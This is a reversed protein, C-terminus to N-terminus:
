RFLRLRSGLSETQRAPILRKVFQEPVVQDRGHMERRGVSKMEFLGRGRQAGSFM